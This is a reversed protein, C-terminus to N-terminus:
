VDRGPLEDDLQYGDDEDVADAARRLQDRVPNLRDHALHFDTACIQAVTPETAEGTPSSPPWAPGAKM